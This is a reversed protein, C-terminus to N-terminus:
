LLFSLQLSNYQVGHRETHLYYNQYIEFIPNDQIEKDTIANPNKNNAFLNLWELAKAEDGIARMMHFGNSIHLAKTSDTINKM